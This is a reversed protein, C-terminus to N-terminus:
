PSQPTGPSSYPYENEDDIVAMSDDHDSDDEDDSQGDDFDLRPKSTSVSSIVLLSPVPEHKADIAVWKTTPPRGDNIDQTVVPSYYFDTDLETGPDRNDPVISIFWRMSGNQLRCRYLSVDIVEDVYKTTKRFHGAGNLISYFNYRGDVEWAGSGTVIVSCGELATTLADVKNKVGASTVVTHSRNIQSVLWEYSANQAAKQNIWEAISPIYYFERILDLYRHTLPRSDYATHSYTTRVQSPPNTREFEIITLLGEDGDILEALRNELLGDELRVFLRLVGLILNEAPNYSWDRLITKLRTLTM